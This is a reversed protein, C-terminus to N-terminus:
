RVRRSKPLISRLIAISGTGAPYPARLASCIEIVVSLRLPCHSCLRAFFLTIELRQTGAPPSVPGERRRQFCGPGFGPWVKGPSATQDIGRTAIPADFRFNRVVPKGEAGRDHM